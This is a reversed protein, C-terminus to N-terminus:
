GGYFRIARDALARTDRENGIANFAIALGPILRRGIRKAARRGVMKALRTALAEDKGMRASVMAEAVRKGTGDLAARAAEVNPYLEQLVLLEASRMPDHPDYGYSAAIFFVLRSQIWAAAALDPILTIFGGVGTAAGTFRALSAHRKKAMRALDDGSLAYLRRKEALWAEAAPAHYKAAALALHEPARTPDERMREWLGPPLERLQADETVRDELSSM